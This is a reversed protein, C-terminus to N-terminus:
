YKGSCIFQLEENQQNYIILIIIPQINVIAIKDNIIYKEISIIIDYLFFFTFSDVSKIIRVSLILFYSSSSM